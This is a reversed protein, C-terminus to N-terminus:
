LNEILYTLEAGLHQIYTETDELQDERIIYIELPKDIGICGGRNKDFLSKVEWLVRKFYLREDPKITERKNLLHEMTYVLFCVLEYYNEDDPIEIREEIMWLFNNVALILKKIKDLNIKANCSTCEEIYSAIVNQGCNVCQIKDISFVKKNKGKDIFEKFDNLYKEFSKSRLLELNKDVINPIIDDIPRGSKFERSIMILRPITFSQSSLTYSACIQFKQKPYDGCFICPKTFYNILRGCFQCVYIKTFYGQEKSLRKKKNAFRKARDIKGQLYYLAVREKDDEIKEEDFFNGVYNEAKAIDNLEILLYCFQVKLKFSDPNKKLGRAIINIADNLKQDAESDRGLKKLSEAKALHEQFEKEVIFHLIGDELEKYEKKRAERKDKKFADFIGM